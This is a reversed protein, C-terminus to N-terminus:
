ASQRVFTATATYSAAEPVYSGTLSGDALIRLDWQGTPTCRSVSSHTIRERGGVIGNAVQVLDIVGGCGLSDYEVSAEAVGPRILIEVPVPRPKDSEQYSGRWDGIMSQPFVTTSPSTPVAAAPKGPCWLCGDVTYKVTVFAGLLGFIGAVVAAVLSRDPQSVMAVGLYRHSVFASMRTVQRAPTDIEAVV